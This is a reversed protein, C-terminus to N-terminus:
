EGKPMFPMLLRMLFYQFRMGASVDGTEMVRQLNSSAGHKEQWEIAGACLLNSGDGTEDTTKHCQFSEGHLLGRKIEAMRGSRLSKALALGPGSTAFPCNDCKAPM